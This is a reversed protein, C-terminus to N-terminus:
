ANKNKRGLLTCYIQHFTQTGCWPLQASLFPKGNDTLIALHAHHFMMHIFINIHGAMLFWTPIRWTDNSYFDATAGHINEKLLQVFKRTGLLM